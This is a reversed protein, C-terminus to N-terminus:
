PTPPLSPSPFRCRHSPPAPSPRPTSIAQSSIAPRMSSSLASPTREYLRQPKEDDRGCAECAKGASWRTGVWSTLLTHKAHDTCCWPGWRNPLTPSQPLSVLARCAPTPEAGAWSVVRRWHLYPCSLCAASPLAPYPGTRPANALQGAPKSTVNDAARARLLLPHAASEMGLGPKGTPFLRKRDSQTVESMPEVAALLM